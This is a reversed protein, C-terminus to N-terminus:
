FRDNPDMASQSRRRRVSARLGWRAPALVRYGMLPTRPLYPAARRLRAAASHGRSTDNRRLPGDSPSTQLCSRLSLPPPCDAPLGVAHAALHASVRTKTHRRLERRPQAAEPQEHLSSIGGCGIHRPSSVVSNGLHRSELLFRFRGSGSTCGSRARAANVFGATRLGPVHM